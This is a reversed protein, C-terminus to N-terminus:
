RGTNTRPTMGSMRIAGAAQDSSLFAILAKAAEPEKSNATLGAAFITIRQLEPPLPGVIVIGEVPKLESIQQFGLEAEGRAVVKGVPEAPIMRAKDKVQDLIGLRQFLESSIYVGSASDSYAISKANLLAKKFAEVSGIDPRPAGDRVAAGIISEALDFRGSAPVKGKKILADLAPGAMIVVDAQEGRELRNPIAQPTDGMSPGYATEVKHGTMTEFQPVLQKYASSFGGSLMVRIEAAELRGAFCLLLAFFFATKSFSARM